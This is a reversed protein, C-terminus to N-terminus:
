PNIPNSLIASSGHPNCAYNTQTTIHIIAEITVATCCVEAKATFHQTARLEVITAQMLATVIRVPSTFSVENNQVHM